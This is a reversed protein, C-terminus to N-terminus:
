FNTIVFRSGVLCYSNDFPVEDFDPDVWDFKKTELRANISVDKKDEPFKCRGISQLLMQTIAVLVDNIFKNGIIGKRRHELGKSSGKVSVHRFDNQLMKLTVSSLPSIQRSQCM